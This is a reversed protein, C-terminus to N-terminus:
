RHAVQEGGAAAETSRTRALRGLGVAALGATLLSVLAFVVIASAADSSRGYTTSAVALAPANARVSTILAGTTRAARGPRGVVWGLLLAAVVTPLAVQWVVAAADLVEGHDRLLAIAVVALFGAASVRGLAGAWARAHDPRLIRLGAGIALPVLVYLLLAGVVALVSPRVAESLMITSWIPITVLNCLELVVVLGIALPMDGQALRVVALGIAGGSAAGVIVLGAAHGDPVALVRVLTVVILPIIVADLLAIRVFRRRDAMVSAIARPGHSLGNGIGAAWLAVVLALTYAVDLVHTM